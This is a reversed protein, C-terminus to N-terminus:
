RRAQKLENLRRSLSEFMELKQAVIDIMEEVYDEIDVMTESNNDEQLLAGERELLHAVQKLYSIHDTM